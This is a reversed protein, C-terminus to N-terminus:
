SPNYDGIYQSNSLSIMKKGCILYEIIIMTNNTQWNTQQHRQIPCPTKRVYYNTGDVTVICMAWIKVCGRRTSYLQPEGGKAKRKSGIAWACSTCSVIIWVGGPASIARINNIAGNMRRWRVCNVRDTENSERGFRCRVPV